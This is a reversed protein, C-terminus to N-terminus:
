SQWIFFVSFSFVIKDAVQRDSIVFVLFGTGQTTTYRRTQNIMWFAIWTRLLCGSACVTDLIWFLPVSMSALDSIFSGSQALVVAYSCLCRCFKKKCQTKLNRTYGQVLLHLQMVSVDCSTVTVWMAKCAGPVHYKFHMKALWCRAHTNMNDVELALEFNEKAGKWV